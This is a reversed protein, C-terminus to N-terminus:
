LIIKAGVLSIPGFLMQQPESLMTRARDVLTCESWDCLEKHRHSPGVSQNPRLELSSETVKKSGRFSNPCSPSDAASCYRRCLPYRITARLRREDTPSSSKTASSPRANTKTSTFARRVSVNPPAM